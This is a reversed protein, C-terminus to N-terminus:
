KYADEWKTANPNVPPLHRVAGARQMIEARTMNTDVADDYAFDFLGQIYDHGGMDEPRIAMEAKTTKQRKRRGSGMKEVLRHFVPDTLSLLCDPPIQHMSSKNCTYVTEDFGSLTYCVSDM